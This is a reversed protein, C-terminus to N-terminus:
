ELPTLVATWEWEDDIAHRWRDVSIRSPYGLGPDFVVAVEDAESRILREADTFLSEVTRLEPEVAIGWSRVGGTGSVVAAGRVRSEFPTGRDCYCDKSVVLRYEHPAAARWLTRAGDLAQLM